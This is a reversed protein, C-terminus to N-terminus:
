TRRLYLKKLTIDERRLKSVMEDTKRKRVFIEVNIFATRVDV